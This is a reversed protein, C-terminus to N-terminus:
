KYLKKGDWFKLKKIKNDKIELLVNVSNGYGANVVMTDGIKDKGFHEHIHGGVCILPKYRVCFNRAVSSGLHKKYAYSKKNLVIDLKTNHPINHSIFVTPKKKDRKKYEISLRELIKKYSKKLKEKSKKDFSFKVKLNPSEPASSLGYGLINFESFKHLKYQCDYINSLGNTLFRNTEKGLWFDYFMKLYHYDSKYSDKIRTQGYSHDWNGPVLFVPKGFSNLYELIERGRKLSKKELQGLKRKGIQKIIFDDYHLVTKNSAKAKKVHAGWKKSFPMIERDDCVDGPVIIADFDKFHIRPKRGHLDGIILFKM